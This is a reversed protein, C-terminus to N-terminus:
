LQTIVVASENWINISSYLLMTNAFNSCSYNQVFNKWKSDDHNKWESDNKKCPHIDPM